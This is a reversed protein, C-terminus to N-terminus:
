IELAAMFGEYTAEELTRPALSDGIQRVFPAFRKTQEYLEVNPIRGLSLVVTDWNSSSPLRSCVLPTGLRVLYFFMESLINIEEEQSPGFYGPEM